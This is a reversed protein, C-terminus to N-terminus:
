VLLATIVYDAALIAISSFVVGRVTAAGVARAGAEGRQHSHFGQFACLAVTLLGFVLAKTLCESIDKPHVAQHVASWYAHTDQHLLLCGSVWGGSIGLLAFISTLVPFVFCAMWLRPGVWYGEASIGMLELADIQETSRQIGLEAALATGAQGALVIAALVPALERCLSLSVLTGLMSSAGFRALVYHGQLGLVLGSFIAVISVVPLCRVGLEHLSRILRAAFIEGSRVQALSRFSFCAVRGLDSVANVLWAGLNRLLV